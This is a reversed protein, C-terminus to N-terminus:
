ARTKQPKAANETTQAERTTVAEPGSLYGVVRSLASLARNACVVRRLRMYDM